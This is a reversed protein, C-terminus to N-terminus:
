IIGQTQVVGNADVNCTDYAITQLKIM